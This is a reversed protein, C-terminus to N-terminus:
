DAITIVVNGKKHGLEVYRHAEAIRELWRGYHRDWPRPWPPPNRMDVYMGLRIGGQGTM